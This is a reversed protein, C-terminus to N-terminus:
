RRGWGLPTPFVSWPPQAPAAAGIPLMAVFLAIAIVWLAGEQSLRRRRVPQTTGSNGPDNAVSEVVGGVPHKRRRKGIPKM